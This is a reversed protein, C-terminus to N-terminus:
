GTLWRLQDGIGRRHDPAKEDVPLGLFFKMSLSDNVMAETQRQSLDYFYSLLWM